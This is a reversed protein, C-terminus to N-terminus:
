RTSTIDPYKHRTTVQGDESTEAHEVGIGVVRFQISYPTGPALTQHFTESPGASSSPKRRHLKAIGLQSMFLKEAAELGIGYLLRELIM